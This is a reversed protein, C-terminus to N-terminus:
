YLAKIQSGKYFFALINDHRLGQRAMAEADWQGMGVGHGYGKGSIVLFGEDDIPSIEALTSKMYTQGLKQRLGYGDIDVYYGSRDQLRIKDIRGSSFRSQVKVLVIPQNFQYLRGLDETRIKYEWAQAPDNEAVYSASQQLYPAKDFIETGASLSGGSSAHFYSKIIDGNYTLVMGATDNIIQNVKPNETKMGWYVQSRTDSYLDFDKQNQDRRKVEYLAYTRSAIAQAKLTETNWSSYIEKPVVSYLYEEINVTNIFHLSKDKRTIRFTGRYPSGNFYFGRLGRATIEDVKFLAGNVIIGKKDYAVTLATETMATTNGAEFIYTSNPTVSFLDGSALLIRVNIDLAAPQGKWVFANQSEMCSALTFCILILSKKM